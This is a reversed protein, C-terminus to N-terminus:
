SKSCIQLPSVGVKRIGGEASDSEVGEEAGCKRKLPPWACHEPVLVSGQM